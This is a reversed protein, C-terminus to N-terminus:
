DKLVDEQLVKAIVLNLHQHKEHVPNPKLALDFSEVVEGHLKFPAASRLDDVFM